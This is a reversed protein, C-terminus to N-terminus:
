EEVTTDMIQVNPWTRFGLFEVAERDVGRVSWGYASAGALITHKFITSNPPVPKPSRGLSRGATSIREGRPNSAARIVASTESSGPTERDGAM